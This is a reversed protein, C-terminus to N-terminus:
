TIKSAAGIGYPHVGDTSFGRHTPVIWGILENDFNTIDVVPNEQADFDGTDRGDGRPSEGRHSVALAPRWPSMRSKARPPLQPVAQQPPKPTRQRGAPGYWGDQDGIAVNSVAM